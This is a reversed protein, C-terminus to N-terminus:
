GGLQDEEKPEHPGGSVLSWSRKLESEGTVDALSFNFNMEKKLNGDFLVRKAQKHVHKLM